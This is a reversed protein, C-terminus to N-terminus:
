PETETVCCPGHLPKNYFLVQILHNLDTATIAGDCDIDEGMHNCYGGPPTVAVNFQCDATNGYTDTATCTVLTVGLPLFSGSPPNCEVTVDACEDVATTEFEVVAGTEGLEVIIITDPHCAIVPPTEDVVTVVAECSDIGCYDDEVYMTVITQGLPYPGPPEQRFTLPDGDPDFSGADISADASCGNQTSVQVNACQAVPPENDVITITGKTFDPTFPTGSQRDVFELRNQPDICVTDIEFTGATGTATVTMVLSGETDSGPPLDLNQDIFTVGAFLVGEPSAIVPHSLTDGSGLTHFAGPGCTGDPDPYINTVSIDRLKAGPGLRDAFSAKLSTIYAGPTVERIVFPAVITNLTVDNEIFARIPCSTGNTGIGKSEVTVQNAANTTGGVLCVLGVVVMCLLLWKM